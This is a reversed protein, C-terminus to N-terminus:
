DLRGSMIRQVEGSMASNTLTMWPRPGMYKTGLELHKGYIVNTGWRGVLKDGDVEHTVNRRLNGSRKGPYDGPVSPPPSVAGLNDIAHGALKEGAMELRSAIEQRILRIAQEGHWELKGRAM